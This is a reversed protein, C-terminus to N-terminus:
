IHLLVFVGGFKQARQSKFRRFDLGEHGSRGSSKTSCERAILMKSERSILLPFIMFSLVLFNSSQRSCREEIIPDM